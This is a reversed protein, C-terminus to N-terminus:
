VAIVAANIRNPFEDMPVDSVDDFIAFDNDILDIRRLGQVSSINVQPIVENEM